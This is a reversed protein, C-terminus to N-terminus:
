RTVLPPFKSLVTLAQYKSLISYNRRYGHASTPIKNFIDYPSCITYYYHLQILEELHKHMSM